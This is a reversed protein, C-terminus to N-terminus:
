RGDAWPQMVLRGKGESVCRGVRAGVDLGLGHDVYLHLGLYCM